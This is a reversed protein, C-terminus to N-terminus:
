DDAFCYLQMARREYAHFTRSSANMEDCYDIAENKDVFAAVFVKREPDSLTPSSKWVVYVTHIEM